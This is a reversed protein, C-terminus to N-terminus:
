RAGGLQPRCAEVIFGLILAFFACLVLYSKSLSYQPYLPYVGTRFWIIAHALPNLSLWWRIKPPIFDMVFFVGAILMMGRNTVILVTVWAESVDSIASNILNVGCAFLTVLTVAMFCNIPNFPLAIPDVLLALGGLVVVSAVCMIIYELIVLTLFEDIPHICPFRNDREASFGRTKASIRMYFYFPLIGTAHFVVTSSGYVPQRLMFYSVSGFVIIVGIPELILLCLTVIPWQKEGYSMIERIILAGLIALWRRFGSWLSGGARIAAADREFLEIDNTADTM